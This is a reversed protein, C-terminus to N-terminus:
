GNRAFNGHRITRTAPAATSRLQPMRCTWRRWRHPLHSRLCGRGAQIVGSSLTNPGAGAMCRIISRLAPGSTRPHHLAGRLQCHSRTKFWYEKCLRDLRRMRTDFSAFQKREAGAGWEVGLRNEGFTAAYCIECGSRAGSNAEIRTCGTWANGTFDTWEIGTMQRAVSRPITTKDTM